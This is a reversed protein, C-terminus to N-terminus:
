KSATPASGAARGKIVYEGLEDDFVAGAQQPSDGSMVVSRGSAFDVGHSVVEQLRGTNPNREKVVIVVIDGPELM